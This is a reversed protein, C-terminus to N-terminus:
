ENTAQATEMSRVEMPEDHVHHRISERSRRGRRGRRLELHEMVLRKMRNTAVDILRWACSDTERLIVRRGNLLRVIVNCQKDVGGKPGNLDMLRIEVDAIRRQVRDLSHHVRRRVHRGYSDTVDFSRSQIRVRM